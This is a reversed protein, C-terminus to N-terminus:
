AEEMDIEDVFVMNNDNPEDDAYDGTSHMWDMAQDICYDVDQVIHCDTGPDCPLCGADFFDNSWDPSYQSREPDWICMRIEVAKKKDRMKM